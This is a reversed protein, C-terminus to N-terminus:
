SKMWKDKKSQKPKSASEKEASKGKVKRQLAKKTDEIEEKTKAIVKRQEPTFHQPNDMLSMLEEENLGTKKAMKGLEVALQEHMKKMLVVLEKREEENSENFQAKLANFFALTKLLLENINPKVQDGATAFLKLLREFEEHM